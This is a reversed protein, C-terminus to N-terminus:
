IKEESLLEFLGNMAGHLTDTVLIVVEYDKVEKSMARIMRKSSFTNFSYHNVNTYKNCTHQFSSHHSNSLDISAISQNSLNKLPILNQDNKLLVLSHDYNLPHLSDKLGFVSSFVM